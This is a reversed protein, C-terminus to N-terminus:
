TIVSFPIFTVSYPTGLLCKWSTLTAIKFAGLNSLDNYYYILLSMSRKCTRITPPQSFQWSGRFSVTENLLETSNSTLSQRCPVLLLGMYGQAKQKLRGSNMCAKSSQKLAGQEGPTRWGRNGGTGQKVGAEEELLERLPRPARM